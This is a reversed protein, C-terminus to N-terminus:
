RQKRQKASSPQLLKVLALSQANAVRFVPIRGVSVDTGYAASAQDVSKAPDSAMAVLVFLPFVMAMVGASTLTNLFFTALTCPSGARLLSVGTLVTLIRRNLSWGALSWRYDFCYFAYLWALLIFYLFPGVAPVFSVLSVQAVFVSFLVIRYIEEGVMQGIRDIGAPLSSSQQQQKSAGNAASKGNNDAAANSADIALQEKYAVKAIENYMVALASDLVRAVDARAEAVVPSDVAINGGAWAPSLSLLWRVFPTVVSNLLVMSGLFILGNLLFCQATKVLIVRSRAFYVVARHISCAEKFGAWFLCAALRVSAAVSLRRGGGGAGGGGGRSPAMADAGGM